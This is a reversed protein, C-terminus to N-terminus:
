WGVRIRFAPCDALTLQARSWSREEASNLQQQSRGTRHIIVRITGKDGRAVLLMRVKPKADQHYCGLRPSQATDLWESKGGM